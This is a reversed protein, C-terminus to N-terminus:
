NYVSMYLVSKILHKMKFPLLNSEESFIPFIDSSIPSYKKELELSASRQLKPDNKVQYFDIGSIRCWIIAEEIEQKKNYLQFKILKNKRIWIFLDLNESQYWKKQFGYKTQKTNKIERLMSFVM